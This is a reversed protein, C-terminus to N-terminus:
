TGRTATSFLWAMDRPGPILWGCLRVGDATTLRVDEYGLGVDVPTGELARWPKFVYKREFM